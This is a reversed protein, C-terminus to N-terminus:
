ARRSARHTFPQSLPVNRRSAAITDERNVRAPQSSEFEFLQVPASDGHWQRPGIPAVSAPERNAGILNRFAARAADQPRRRGTFMNGAGRLEFGM